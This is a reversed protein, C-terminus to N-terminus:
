SSRMLSQSDELRLAPATVAGFIGDGLARSLSSKGVQRVRGFLERLNGSIPQDPYAEALKGGRIRRLGRAEARFALSGPDHCAVRRLASIWLGDPAGELLDQLTAEGPSLFLNALQVEEGGAAFSGTQDSPSTWGLPLPQAQGDAVLDLREKANGKLDFLFPMGLPDRGDDYISLPHSEPSAFCHNLFTTTSPKGLHSSVFRTAEEVLAGTSEPSLVLPGSFLNAGTERVGQARRFRAHELPGLPLIRDLRRASARSVGAEPGRGASAFLTGATIQLKRRLGLSSSIAVRAETWELQAREGRELADTLLERAEQSGLRALTGDFLERKPLPPLRQPAKPKKLPVVPLARAQGLAQRIADSLAEFPGGDLRHFGFRGRERVRILITREFRPPPLSRGSSTARSVKREVWAIETFDAPSLLIAKDLDATIEDLHKLRRM